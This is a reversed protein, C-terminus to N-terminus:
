HQETLTMSQGPKTNFNEDLRVDLRTGPALMSYGPFHREGPYKEATFASMVSDMFGGGYMLPNKYSTM